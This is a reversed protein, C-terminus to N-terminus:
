FGLYMGYEAESASVAGRGVGSDRRAARRQRLQERRRKRKEVREQERAQTTAQVAEWERMGAAVAARERRGM